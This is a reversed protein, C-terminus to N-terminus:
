SRKGRKRSAIKSVKGGRRRKFAVRRKKGPVREPLSGYPKSKRAFERCQSISRQGRRAAAFCQRWQARSVFPM